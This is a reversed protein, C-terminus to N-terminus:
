KLDVETQPQVPIDILMVNLKGSTLSGKASTVYSKGPKSAKVSSPFRCFNFARSLLIHVSGQNIGDFGRLNM